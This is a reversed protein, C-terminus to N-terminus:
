LKGTSYTLAQFIMRINSALELLSEKRRKARIRQDILFPPINVLLM